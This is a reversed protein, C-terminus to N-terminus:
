RLDKPDGKESSAGGAELAADVRERVASTIEAPGPDATLQSASAAAATSVQLQYDGYDGLGEWVYLSQMVIIAYTGPELTLTLLSNPDSFINIDDNQWVEGTGSIDTVALYTNFESSEAYFRVDMIESLELVWREYLTGDPPFLACDTYSISSTVVSGVTVTDVTAARGTCEGISASLTYTGVSGTANTNAYVRWDGPPLVLSHAADNGPGGNNDAELVEGAADAILLYPDFSDSSLDFQVRTSDAAEFAWSEAFTGDPITCDLMTLEGPLTDGGVLTGVRFDEQEQCARGGRTLDLDVLFVEEASLGGSTATATVTTEGIARATLLGDQDIEAIEPSSSTWEVEPTAM